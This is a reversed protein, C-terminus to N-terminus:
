AYDRSERRLTVYPVYNRTIFTVYVYRSTVGLVAIPWAVRGAPGDDEPEGGPEGGQM